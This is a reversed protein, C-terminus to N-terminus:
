IHSTSGLFFLLTFELGVNDGFFTGVISSFFRRFDDSTHLLALSFFYLSNWALSTALFLKWSRLFFDVFIMSHTFYLWPFFLLTFELGVIDGFFLKRSRPFFISM